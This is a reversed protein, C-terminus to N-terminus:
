PIEKRESRPGLLSTRALLSRLMERDERPLRQIHRFVATVRKTRGREGASASYGLRRAWAWVTNRHLGLSEAVWVQPFGRSLLRKAQAFQEALRTVNM